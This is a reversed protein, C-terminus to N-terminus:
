GTRDTGSPTSCAGDGGPGPDGGGGGASSELGVVRTTLREVAITQRALDDPMKLLATAHDRAWFLAGAIAVIPLWHERMRKIAQLLGQVDKGTQDVTM